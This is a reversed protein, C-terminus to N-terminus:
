RRRCRPRVLRFDARVLDISRAFAICSGDMMPMTCSATPEFAHALPLFPPDGPVYGQQSIAAQFQGVRQATELWTLSRWQGSTANPSRAVRELLLGPLTGADHASIIDTQQDKAKAM